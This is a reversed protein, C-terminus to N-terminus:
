FRIRSARKLVTDIVSMAALASSRPNGSLPKGAIRFEFRGFEGEAEIEHINAIVTPDAILMAETRDFGIGALAVAAAVNANKPYAQAAERATGTFHIAPTDIVAQLDLRVEAPSGLWGTPPKRGVYRVKKLTGIRASRLADLAGIAGSALFLTASGDAAAHRLEDEFAPDALAGLSLTALDFGARLVRAGYDRLAQHGACDIVWDLDTPLEEVSSVFVKGTRSGTRMMAAREARLLFAVVQHGEAVLKEEVYEAIAGCGILGINM